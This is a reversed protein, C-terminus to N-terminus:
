ARGEGGDDHQVRKLVWEEVRVTPETPRSPGQFLNLTVPITHPALVPIM